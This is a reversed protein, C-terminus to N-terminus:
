EHRSGELSQGISKELAALTVANNYVADAYAKRGEMLSRRAEILEIGGIEGKQFSFLFTNYVEEAQKLIGYEFLAIQSGATNANLVAEEVELSIADRLHDAQRKLSDMTAESEAIAGKLPQWFFLPIPASITIDWTKLEGMIRHQSVGVNFDPLLSFRAQNKKLAEREMALNIKNIEPRVSFARRKFEEIDLLIDTKEWEGSIKLPEMKRRALLFNLKAAALREENESIRVANVAKSTEVRARLAEVEAIDGASRRLEAKQLFDESLALDQQAYKNKEQALLLNFFAQKVQFILDLKLLEIEALIEGSERSAIEGRLRRKGPFELTQSLGAYFERSGKFDFLRPQLDSDFSLTPQPFEKAQNIRALSARYEDLSSLLLPNYQLAIEVCQSLSLTQKRAEQAPIIGVSILTTLVFGIIKQYNM